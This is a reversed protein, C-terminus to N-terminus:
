VTTHPQTRLRVCVNEAPETLFILLLFVKTSSMGNHKLIINFHFLIYVVDFVVVKLFKTNWQGYMM